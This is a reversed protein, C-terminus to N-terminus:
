HPSTLLTHIDLNSQIFRILYSDRFVEKKGEHEKTFIYSANRRKVKWGQEVANYLLLMKQFIIPDVADRRVGPGKEKIDM